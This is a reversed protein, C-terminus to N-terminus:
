AVSAICNTHDRVLGDSITCTKIPLPEALARGSFSLLISSLWLLWAVGAIRNRKGLRL